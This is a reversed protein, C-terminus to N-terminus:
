DRPSPSTYLLCTEQEVQGVTLWTAPNPIIGYAMATTGGILEPFRALQTNAFTTATSTAYSDEVVVRHLQDLENIIYLNGDYWTSSKPEGPLRVVGNSQNMYKGFGSGTSSPDTQSIRALGDTTPALLGTGNFVLSSVERSQISSPFDGIDGYPPTVITLDNPNFRWLEPTTNATSTRIGWLDKGVFCAGVIKGDDDTVGSPWSGIQGYPSTSSGPNFPNILYLGDDDLLYVDEDRIALANAEVGSALEGLFVLDNTDPNVFYLGPDSAIVFAKAM